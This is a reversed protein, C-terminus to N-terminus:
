PSPTFDDKHLILRSCWGQGEINVNSPIVLGGVTPSVTSVVPKIRYGGDCADLYVTAGKGARKAANLAAQIHSTDDTVGDGVAGYAKVSFSKNASPYAAIKADVEADRAVAPQIQADPVDGSGDLVAYGNPQNPPRSKLFELRETFDTIGSGSYTADYSGEDIWGTIRGLYSVLPQPLTAADTETVYITALTTTGAFYFNAAIGSAPVGDDAIIIENIEVRAM